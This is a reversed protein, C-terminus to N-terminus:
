YEFLFGAFFSTGGINLRGGATTNILARLRQVEIILYTHHVGYDLYLSNAASQDLGDLLFQLGARTHMGDARGRQTEQFETEERYYIRTWGGGVYPVIWQDKTFEGRLLIHANFPFLEYIVRGTLMGHGPAYGKGADRVYGGDIGAEIRRVIKYSIGVSYQGISNDGYYEEWHEIAPYFLGAKVELSWHPSEDGRDEGYAAIPLLFSICAIFILGKMNFTFHM